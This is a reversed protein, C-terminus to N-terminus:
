MYGRCTMLIRTTTLILSLVPTLTLSQVTCPPLSHSQRHIVHCNGHRAAPQASKCRQTPQTAVTDTAEMDGATSTKVVIHSSRSSTEKGITEVIKPLVSFAPARVARVEDHAVDHVDASPPEVVSVVIADSPETGSGSRGGADERADDAPATVSVAAAAATELLSAKGDGMAGAIGVVSLKKLVNLAEACAGHGHRAALKAATLAAANRCNLLKTGGSYRDNGDGSRNCNDDDDFM